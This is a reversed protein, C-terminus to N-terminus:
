LLVTILNPMAFILVFLVANNFNSHSMDINSLNLHILQAGSLNVDHMQLKSVPMFDNSSINNINSKTILKTPTNNNTPTVSEDNPIYIDTREAWTILHVAGDIIECEKAQYTESNNYEELTDFILTSLPISSRQFVKNNDRVTFITPTANEYKMLESQENAQKASGYETLEIQRISSDEPNIIKLMKYIQVDEDKKRTNRVIWSSETLEDEYLMDEDTTLGEIPTDIIVWKGNIPKVPYVTVNVSYDEDEEIVEKIVIYLRKNM